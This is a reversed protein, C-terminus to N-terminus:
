PASAQDVLSALERKAEANPDPPPPPQRAGENTNAYTQGAPAPQAKAAPKPKPPRYEIFEVVVTAGGRGDYQLGSISSMVVSTFGNRALDPHYIPLAKPKPGNTTSEILRQFSDWADFDNEGSSGDDVLYISASFPQIPKGQLSSSAGDQGKADKVDWKNKRDHGTFKVVGPSLTTGLIFKSLEFELDHPRPM